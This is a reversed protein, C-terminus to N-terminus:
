HLTQDSRRPETIENVYKAFSGSLMILESDYAASTEDSVGLVRMLGGVHIETIGHNYLVRMLEFMIIRVKQDVDDDTM